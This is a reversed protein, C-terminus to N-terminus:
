KSGLYDQVPKSNNSEWPFVLWEDSTFLSGSFTPFTDTGKRVALTATKFGLSVADKLTEGSDSIDDVVLVQAKTKQPLNCAYTYDLFKLGYRHSIMIAPILGGRPIGAVYQITHGLNYFTDLQEGIENLQEDVWKWSLFIKQKDM